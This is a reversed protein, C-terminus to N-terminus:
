AESMIREEGVFDRISLHNLELVIILSTDLESHKIGKQTVKITALLRNLGLVTDM